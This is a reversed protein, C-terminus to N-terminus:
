EANNFFEDEKEQNLSRDLAEYFMKDTLKRLNIKDITKKASVEKVISYLIDGMCYEPLESTYEKLKDIILPKYNMEGM